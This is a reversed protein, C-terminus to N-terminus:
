SSNNIKKHNINLELDEKLRRHQDETDQGWCEEIYSKFNEEKLRFLLDYDELTCDRFSYEM